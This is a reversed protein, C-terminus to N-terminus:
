YDAIVRWGGPDVGAPAARLTECHFGHLQGQQAMINGATMCEGYSGYEIPPSAGGGDASAIGGCLVAAAASAAVLLGASGAKRLISM